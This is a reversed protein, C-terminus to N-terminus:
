HATSKLKKALTINFNCQELSLYVFLCIVLIFLFFGACKEGIQWLVWLM